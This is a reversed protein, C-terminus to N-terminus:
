GPLWGVMVDELRVYDITTDGFAVKRLIVTVKYAENKKAKEIELEDVLLEVTGSTAVEDLLEDPKDMMVDNCLSAAISGAYKKRAVKVIDAKGIGYSQTSELEVSGADIVISVFESNDENLKYVIFNGCGVTDGTYPNTSKTNKNVACATLLILSTFILINKM